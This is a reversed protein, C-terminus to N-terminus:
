TDPKARQEALRQDRYERAREDKADGDRAVVKLGGAASENWKTITKSIERLAKASHHEGYVEMVERSTLMRWDLVAATTHAAGHTDIYTVTGEHYEPFDTRGNDYRQLGSDWLTRWEQGPVLVPIVDPLWHDGRREPPLDDDIARTPPPDIKLKVDHAATAGFNKLVLEIFVSAAPSPEIYAAVYPQAQERRLAAAENLQKIAVYGAGAAVGVTVWAALAAWAEPSWSNAIAVIVAAAVAATACGAAFVSWRM